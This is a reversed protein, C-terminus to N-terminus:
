NFKSKDKEKIYGKIVELHLELLKEAAKEIETINGYDNVKLGRLVSLIQKKTM